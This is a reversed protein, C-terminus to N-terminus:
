ASWLKVAPIWCEHRKGNIDEFETCNIWGNETLLTRNHHIQPYSGTRITYNYTENEYLTFPADFSLNHWDGSYGNWLLTEISWSENSILAYETHGGTGPCPYIYLTSVSITQNLTITGNHTGSISPYDGKGTDFVKEESLPPIVALLPDGVYFRVIVSNNAIDRAFKPEGPPKVTPLTTVDDVEPLFGSGEKFVQCTEVGLACVNLSIDTYADDTANEPTADTVNVRIVIVNSLNTGPLLYPEIDTANCPEIDVMVGVDTHPCPAIKMCKCDFACKSDIGCTEEPMKGDCTVDAGCITSNCIGSDFCSGDYCKKLTNNVTCGCDTGDLKNVTQTNGTDVWQTSTVSPTCSGGSCSFDRYEQEKREKQDITCEYETVTVWKTEGTDYWGDSGCDTGDLKNVTQTNGTDVWQTSTVSPTCSGGSCSFDRYEQEKQEKQDITCEYETVTVWKTEGTDYWGDSGCDTGDLKNVTQTNGTDVWQTTTVSPTCSGASCSFDRYEQEKQEKQDITCEYETVTVWKTEGTDYWGDSGCDTSDAKNRYEYTGSSVCSGGSCKYILRRERCSNGPDDEWSGYGCVTGDPKNRYKYTGSNVCSGSSCKEIESREKCPNSPDDEWEGYGCVTGDPKNRYEYTGSCTLRREKCSNTPDDEWLGNICVSLSDSWLPSSGVGHADKAKAKVSYINPNSWEKSASGSTGSFYSGIWNSNTGDGWDFWYYVDDGDPDTTVTSYSYSNGIEGNTLGSPKNPKNPPNNVSAVPYHKYYIEWNPDHREDEWVVHVNNENNVAIEPDQVDVSDSGATVLELITGWSNGSDLSNVYYLRDRGDINDQWVVHINAGQAGISADGGGDVSPLTQITGWSGGNDTSRRYFVEYSGSKYGGVAIHVNSGSTEIAPGYYEGNSLLLSDPGWYGDSGKNTNRIYRIHWDIDGWVVYVYNGNDSIAIEPYDVYSSTFLGKSIDWSSGGNSSRLYYVKDQGADKKVYVVHIYNNYAAIDLNYRSVDSAIVTAPSWSNGNNTSRKYIVDKPTGSKIWIVHVNNGDIAIRPNGLASSSLKTASNWTKGCDTSRKYYVETSGSRDDDWVVHVNDGNIAIHPDMSNTSDSTLRIDNSWVAGEATVFDWIDGEITAGHEDEAIVKWYYHSENDLTGLDCTTGLQNDSILVDPTSDGKEFYVDYYVNDGDSDGSNWGLDASLDVGTAGDSPLPDSPEYPPRNSTIPYTARIVFKQAYTCSTGHLQLRWTGSVPNAAHVEKLNTSGTSSDVQIGSPNMLYADIDNDDDDWNVLVRLDDPSGGLSTDINFCIDLGDSITDRREYKKSFAVAYYQDGFSSDITWGVVEAKWKGPVPDAITVMGVTEEEEKSYGKLMGSPDYLYLDLDNHYYTDSGDAPDVWSLVASLESTGAPVNVYLTDIEGQGISSYDLDGLRTESSSIGLAQYVDIIGAGTYYDLPNNESQLPNADSSPDIEWASAMLISKIDAPWLSSQQDLLLASLGSVHPAAMSTGAKSIFNPENEWDNNCSIVWTGPAMVEPKIRNGHVGTGGGPGTSSGNSGGVRDDWDRYDNYVAGVTIISRSNGPNTISGTTSVDENGASKISTVYHDYAAREVAFDVPAAGDSHISGDHEVKLSMSIIDAGDDVSWDIADIITDEATGLIPDHIYGNENMVKANLIDTEPAVGTYTSDTSSAIGCVHTGHSNFDDPDADNDPWSFWSREAVRKSTGLAPHTFDIGSDIIAINVGSGDVGFDMRGTTARIINKSIYSEVGGNSGIPINANEISIPNSKYVKRVYSSNELYSLNNLPVIASMGNIINFKYVVNGGISVVLDEVTEQINGLTENAGVDFIIIIRVVDSSIDESESLVAKLEPDLKEYFQTDLGIRQCLDSHTITGIAEQPIQAIVTNNRYGTIHGGFITITPGIKKRDETSEVFIQCSIYEVTETSSELFNTLDADVKDWNIPEAFNISSLPSAAFITKEKSETGERIIEAHSTASFVVVVLIALSLCIIGKRM